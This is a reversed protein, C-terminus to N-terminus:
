IISPPRLVVSHMCWSRRLARGRKGGLDTEIARVMRGFFRASDTAQELPLARSARKHHKPKLDVVTMLEGESILAGAVM